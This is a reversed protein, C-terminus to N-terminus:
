GNACSGLDSLCKLRRNTLVKRTTNESISLIALFSGDEKYLPSFTLSIYIEEMYNKRPLLFFKDNDYVGDRKGTSKIRQM